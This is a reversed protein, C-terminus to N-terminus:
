NGPGFGPPMSFNPLGAAGGPAAATKPQILEDLKVRLKKYETEGIVYFWESFRANLEAVKKRAAEMKETREDILRQNEKNVREKAAELKEKKEEETLEVPPTAPPQTATAEAAPTAVADTNAPATPVETTAAPEAVPAADSAPADGSAKPEEPPQFSVLRQAGNANLSAQDGGAESGAAPAAQDGGAPKTETPATAEASTPDTTTPEAPPVDTNPNAEAPTTPALDAPVDVASASDVTAKSAAEMRLLDEYTEPVPTLLPAPYKSEDLRATVLMYRDLKLSDDATKDEAKEEGEKEESSEGASNGFRILYQVGDRLTVQLEGNAAYIESSGDKGQQPIFGRRFMTLQSERDDLLAKEVKLDAALGKPKRVVDVIRLSDLANKMENLKTANLQETDTLVRPTEKAGDHTVIRDPSWKGDVTSFSVDADFNPTLIQRGGEGPLINYDRIGLTQIDTSSLKLLDAEIWKSFDTTLPNTDLEVIYVRDQSPIRVFRHKPNDKETKGIVLNVLNDGKANQIRVLMGVGSDGVSLKERDPEVVGFMSHQDRLDTVVDLVKLNIFTNAASSMQAAADAPYGYRSPISWVNSTKDRAVEFDSVTGMTEDYKVIKLTAADLPEYEAFLSKGVVDENPGKSFDVTRPAILWAALAVVGAVVAFIGTKTNENM